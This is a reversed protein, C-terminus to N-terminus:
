LAGKVLKFVQHTCLDILYNEGEGMLQVYDPAWSWLEDAAITDLNINVTEKTTTM